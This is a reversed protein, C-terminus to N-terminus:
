PQFGQAELAERVQKYVRKKFFQVSAPFKGYRACIDRETMRESLICNRVTAYRWPEYIGNTGRAARWVAKRIAWKLQADMAAQEPTPADDDRGQITEHYMEENLHQRRITSRGQIVEQLNEGISEAAEKHLVRRMRHRVMPFSYGGFSGGGDWSQMSKHCQEWGVQMMDDWLHPHKPATRVALRRMKEHTWDAFLAQTQSPSFSSISSTQSM